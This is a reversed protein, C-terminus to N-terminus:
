LLVHPPRSVRVQKEREGSMTPESLVVVTTMPAVQGCYMLHPVYAQSAASRLYITEFISIEAPAAPAAPQALPLWWPAMARMRARVARHAGIASMRPANM